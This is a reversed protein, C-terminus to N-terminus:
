TTDLAPEDQTGEDLGQALTRTPQRALALTHPLRYSGGRNPATTPTEMYAAPPFIKHFVFRARDSYTRRTAFWEVAHTTNPASICSAARHAGFRQSHDRVAVREDDGRASSEIRVDDESRIPAQRAQRSEPENASKQLSITPGTVIDLTALPTDRLALGSIIRAPCGV